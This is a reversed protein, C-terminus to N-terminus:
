DSPGGELLVRVRRLHLSGPYLEAMRAARAEAESRRGLAILAGIALVEREQAFVGGPYLRAHKQLVLLAGAPDKSEAQARQILALETPRSASSAPAKASRPPAVAPVAATPRPDDALAAQPAIAPTPEGPTRVLPAPAVARVAPASVAPTPSTAPVPSTPASRLQFGAFLAAGGLTAVALAKFLSTAGLKGLALAGKAAAPIPQLPAVASAPSPALLSAVAVGAVPAMRAALRELDAPAPGDAEASALLSKVHAPAAEDHLWPKIEPSTTM